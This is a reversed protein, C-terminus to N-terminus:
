AAFKSMKGLKALASQFGRFRLINRMQYGILPLPHPFCHLLSPLDGAALWILWADCDESKFSHWPDLILAEDAKSNVARGMAFAQPTSFVYGNLLHAELDRQFTSACEERQYVQAAREVPTM